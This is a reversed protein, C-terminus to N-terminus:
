EPVKVGILDGLHVQTEYGEETNELLDSRLFVKDKQLLLVITSGGFEFYGKETGRIVPEPKQSHNCIKGVMLAGVEMQTVDGFFPSHIVTFERCNEKYIPYYDNAIPNVTHLVGPIFYNKSKKGTVAYAYRHYDRVTLRLVLAYGGEYRKALKRSHLLAPLSYHTYKINFTSNEDIKYASVYSDCPSILTNEDGEIKRAGERIKRTFFDNYSRYKKRPFDSMDLKNARIFGPVIHRSPSTSLLLGAFKSFAPSLFPKLIARGVNTSYILKLLKDQSDDANSREGERNIQRM